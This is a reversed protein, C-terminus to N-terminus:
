ELHGHSLVRVDERSGRRLLIGYGTTLGVVNPGLLGIGQAAARLQPDPPQPFTGLELVRVREPYRVGAHAALARERDDLAWGTAMAQRELTEIWKIAAHQIAANLCVSNM